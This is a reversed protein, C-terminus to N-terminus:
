RSGGYDGAGPVFWDGVSDGEPPLAPPPDPAPTYLLEEGTGGDFALDGVRITEAASNLDDADTSAVVPSDTIAPTTQEPTPNQSVQNAINRASPSEFVGDTQGFPYQTYADDNFGIEAGWGIQHEHLVTMDSLDITILKPYLTESGPDFFGSGDDGFDPTITLGGVAVLLGENNAANQILNAFKIRMLPPKSITNARNQRDYAPYMFQALRNCKALNTKAEEISYAPIKWAVTFSRKTRQFTMIPDFRGFVDEPSYSSQFNENYATIFAKFSVDLGSAIQSIRLSLGKQNAYMDSGDVSRVDNNKNANFIDAM